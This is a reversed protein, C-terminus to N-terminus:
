QVSASAPIGVCLCSSSCAGRVIWSSLYCLYRRVQLLEADLWIAFAGLGGVALAEQRAYMFFDNKM